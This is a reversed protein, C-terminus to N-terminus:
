KTKRFIIIHQQPLIEITEDWSLTHLAMEKKVQEVSMKHVEKIPVKPDEKRFEVFVIRGNPKLAEVMASIMEFPHDFEHYVDVLLMTDCSAPPLKPDTVTGLIPKVIKEVRQKAMQQMLLDLMEQQIDVAYVIGTEGVLRAMRWSFYGSGAGIDAVTEGRRLRLAALLLDTREEQEREPRELWEWAQHGMVHAIERGMFFKGVGNPDHEARTEYRPEPRPTPEAARACFVFVLFLLAWGGGLFSRASFTRHARVRGQASADSTKALTPLSNM